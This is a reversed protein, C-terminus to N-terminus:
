CTGSGQFTTCRATGQAVWCLRNRPIGRLDVDQSAPEPRSAERSQRRVRKGLEHGSEGGLEVRQQRERAGNAGLLPLGACLPLQRHALCHLAVM